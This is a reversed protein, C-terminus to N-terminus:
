GRAEAGLAAQIQRQTISESIPRIELSGGIRMCPLKSMLQIAHNLDNAEVLMIGGLQEKTEAFPGDTISMTGGEFRLTTALKARELAVEDIVHGHERLVDAYAFTEEMLAARKSEPLAQWIREDHFGLCLYKMAQEAEHLLVAVKKSEKSLRIAV